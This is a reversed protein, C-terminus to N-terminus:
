HECFSFTEQHYRKDVDDVFAKREEMLDLRIQKAEELEIPFDGAGTTVLEVLEPPLQRVRDLKLVMEEWWAKQQPPVNATSPIRVYPDVLFLAIMKRHGPKSPDALQFPSVRHQLVNPFVLLRGEKTLVQGLEQLAPGQQEIGYLREFHAYDDQEYPKDALDDQDMMERFALFSDTINESDYYYLASACIHENLQGEIHWSGGDYAPSETTLHINALKVIVQLGRDAFDKRLDVEEGKHAKYHPPPSFSAPEPMILTRSAQKWAEWEEIAEELRDDDDGYDRYLPYPRTEQPKTYYPEQIDIRPKRGRSTRLGTSELSADWMPLTAAIIDELVRYLDSFKGPHLNNIYSTVEVGANDRFKVECPLWQFKDSYFHPMQNPGHNRWSSLGPYSNVELHAPEPVPMTVGNGTYQECDQLTVLGETLIKSRGYILPFLSPHVLDLVKEESGPHWDKQDAPVHELPAAAKKLATQLDESILSDSKVVMADADIAPVYGAKGYRGVYARLEEICKRTWEPKDTIQGMFAIMSRERLTRAHGCWDQIANPFRSIGQHVYDGWSYKSIANVPCDYGHLGDSGAEAKRKAEMREEFATMDNTSSAMVSM